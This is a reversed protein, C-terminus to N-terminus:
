PWKSRNWTNKDGVLGLLEASKGSEGVQKVFYQGPAVCGSYNLESNLLM